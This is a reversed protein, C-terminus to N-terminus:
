HRKLYESDLLYGISLSFGTMVDTRNLGVPPKFGDIYDSFSYRFNVEAGVVFGNNMNYQYGGGFSVLPSIDSATNPTVTRTKYLYNGRFDNGINLNASSRLMGGGIFAYIAGPTPRYYYERGIKIFYEAQLILQIVNSSFNYRRAQNYTDDNGTVNTYNFAIKYGLNNAYTTRFGVSLDNNNLISEKLPDSHTDSYCFEPGLSFTLYSYSIGSNDVLGRRGGQAKLGGVFLLVILVSLLPRKM